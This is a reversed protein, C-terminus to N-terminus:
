RILTLNGISEQIGLEPDEYELQYIYVGQEVPTSNFTGNWGQSPDNSLFNENQFVLNGWRDFIRLHTIMLEEASQLFFIDDGPVSLSIASPRYVEMTTPPAAIAELLISKSILCGETTELILTVETDEEISISSVECTTCSLLDSGSWEISVISDITSFSLDFENEALESAILDFDQLRLDVTRTITCYRGEVRVENTGIQADLFIPIPPNGNPLFETILTDLIDNVFIEVPLFSFSGNYTIIVEDNEDCVPDFDLIIEDQIRETLIELRVSDCGERDQIFLENPLTNIDYSVGLIETTEDFCLHGEIQETTISKYRVIVVTSSDCGAATGAIFPIDERGEDMLSVGDIVIATGKCITTDILGEMVDAFIVNVLTSSDCGIATGPIFPIDMMGEDMLSVGDITISTGDCIMTDLTGQVIDVISVTVLTSSDCGAITGPIFPIDMMGADMLSVGDITISSGDCIMTDLTGQVLDAISVTVLTSSDCGAVTGPLFPIDMSGANMITIGDITIDTGACIVTDLTGQMMDAVTVTVVTSSDCGAQSGPLFDIESQGEDTLTVGDIEIIDGRCITTDITGVAKDAFTLVVRAVSDCGFFSQGVFTIEEDIDQTFTMNLISQPTGACFRGVITDKITPFTDITITVISDCGTPVSELRIVTSSFYEVGDIMTSEGPCVVARREVNQDATRIFGSIISANPDVCGDIVEAIEATIINGSFQFFITDLNQRNTAGNCITYSNNGFRPREFSFTDSTGPALTAANAILIRLDAEINTSVALDICEEDECLFSSQFELSPRVENAPTLVFSSTDPACSGGGPVIYFINNDQNNMVFDAPIPMLPNPGIFFTGGQNENDLFEELPVTEGECVETSVMVPLGAFPQKILTIVIHATDSDCNPSSAPITYQINITGEDEIFRNSDWIGDALPIFGDVTFNGTLEADSSLLPFLELSDGKCVTAVNDDGANTGSGLEVRVEASQAPCSSNSPITYVFAYEFNIATRFDVNGTADIFISPGETQIWNGGLEPNNALAFLDQPPDASCIAVFTSDGAFPPAVGEINLLAFDPICGPIEVTYILEFRQGALVNSLNLDVPNNFDFDPIQSGSWLGGPAANPLVLFPDPIVTMEGECVFLTTDRGALAESIIDVRFSDIFICDGLFFSATDALYITQGTTIVDGPNLLSSISFNRDSAYQANPTTVPGSYAPLTFNSGCLTTDNPINHNPSPQIMFPLLKESECGDTPDFIYLTDLLDGSPLNISVVDLVEGASFQLGTGLPASYYSATPSFPMIEPLVLSDCVLNPIDTTYNILVGVGSDLAIPDTQILNASCGNSDEVSILSLMGPFFNTPVNFATIDETITTVGVTPNGNVHCIRFAHISNADVKTFPTTNNPVGPNWNIEISISYPPAGGTIDVLVDSQINTCEGECLAPVNGFIRADFNSSFVAPSETSTDSLWPTVAVILATSLFIYIVFKSM